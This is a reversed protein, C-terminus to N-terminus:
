KCMCAPEATELAKGCQAIQPARCTVECRKGNM